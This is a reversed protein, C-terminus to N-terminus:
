AKADRKGQGKVWAKLKKIESSHLPFLEFSLTSEEEYKDLKELLM